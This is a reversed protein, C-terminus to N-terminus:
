RASNAGHRRLVEITAEDQNQTASDLATHGGQQTADVPTGSDLLMEVIRSQRAAAAAHLPLNAM